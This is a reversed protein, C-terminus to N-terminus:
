KRPYRRGFCLMYEFSGVAPAIPVKEKGTPSDFVQAGKTLSILADEIDNLFLDLVERM